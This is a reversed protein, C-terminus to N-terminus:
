QTCLLALAVVQRAREHEEGDHDAHVASKQERHLYALSCKPRAAAHKVGAHEADHSIDEGREDERVDCRECGTEKHEHCEFEAHAHREVKVQM